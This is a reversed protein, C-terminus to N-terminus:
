YGGLGIAAAALILDGNERSLDKLMDNHLEVMFFEHCDRAGIM